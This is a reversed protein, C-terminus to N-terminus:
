LNEFILIETGFCLFLGMGWLVGEVLACRLSEKPTRTMLIGAMLIAVGIVLLPLIYTLYLM